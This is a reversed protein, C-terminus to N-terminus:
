DNIAVAAAPPPGKTITVDGMRELQRWYTSDMVPAGEPPLPQFGTDPNRVHAGPKPKAYIMMAHHGKM